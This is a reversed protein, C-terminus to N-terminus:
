NHTKGVCKHSCFPGDRKRVQRNYLEVAERRRFLSGCCKCVLDVMKAPLIAKRANDALSMVQLNSPDDNTFDGDIHDVTEEPLLARGLVGELIVRPWSKTTKVGNEDVFIVHKRGDKRIYPGYM